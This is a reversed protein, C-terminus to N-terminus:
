ISLTNFKILIFSDRSENPVSILELVRILVRFQLFGDADYHYTWNLSNCWLSWHVSVIERWVSLTNIKILILSDRSENPNSILERVRILVRFQLFGDAGLLYTWNISKCCLSWHVSVIERWTYLTNFKILIFSDRSENPVPIIERVRILVRFQLFGDADYLYTWNLSNFWM